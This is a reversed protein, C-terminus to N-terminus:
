SPHYNFFMDGTSYELVVNFTFKAAADNFFSINTWEIIIIDGDDYVHLGGVHGPRFYLDDWFPAIIGMNPTSTSPLPDNSYHTHTDSANGVPDWQDGLTM